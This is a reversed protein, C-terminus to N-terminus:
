LWAEAPDRSTIFCGAYARLLAPLVVHRVALITVQNRTRVMGRCAEGNRFFETAHPDRKYIADVAAEVASAIFECELARRLTPIDREDDWDWEIGHKYERVRSWGFWDFKSPKAWEIPYDIHTELFGKRLATTM